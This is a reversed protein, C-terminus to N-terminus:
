RDRLGSPRASLPGPRRPAGAHRGGLGAGRGRVAARCPWGRPLGLDRRRPRRGARAAAGAPPGRRGGGRRRPPRPPRAGSPPPGGPRLVARAAAVVAPPGAPLVALPADGHLAARVTAVSVEPAPVLTLPRPVLPLGVDRGM